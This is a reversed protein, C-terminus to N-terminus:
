SEARSKLVSIGESLGLARIMHRLFFVRKERSDLLTIDLSPAAIKLPLGPFGAGSGIDLIKKSKLARLCPLLTLSDVFHRSVIEEDTVPGTLNMKEGWRKLEFLYCKFREVAGDDLATGLAGAGSILEDM